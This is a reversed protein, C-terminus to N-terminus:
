GGKDLYIYQRKLNAEPGTSTLGPPNEYASDLRRGDGTGLFLFLLGFELENESVCAYVSIRAEEDM